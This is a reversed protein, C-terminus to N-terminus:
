FPFTDIFLADFFVFNINRALNLEEFVSLTDITGKTSTVENGTVIVNKVAKGDHPILKAGQIAERVDGNVPILQNDPTLIARNQAFMMTGLMAVAVFLTSIKRLM